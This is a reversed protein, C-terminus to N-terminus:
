GDAKRGCLAFGILAFLNFSCATVMALLPPYFLMFYGTSACFVFVTCSEHRVSYAGANILLHVFGFWSLFCISNDLNCAARFMPYMTETMVIWALSIFFAFVHYMAYALDTHSVSQRSRQVPRREIALSPIREPIAENSFGSVDVTYDSKCIACRVRHVHMHPFMRRYRLLCSAHVYKISGDCNCPSILVGDDEDGLCIRCIYPDDMNADNETGMNMSTNNNTSADTDETNSADEDTGETSDETSADMSDETSSADTDETSADTSDETSAHIEIVYIVDDIMDEIVLEVQDFTNEDM